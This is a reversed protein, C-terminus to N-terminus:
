GPGTLGGGVDGGARPSTSAGTTGAGTDEEEGSMAAAEDSDPGQGTQRGLHGEAPERPM